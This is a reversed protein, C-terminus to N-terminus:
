APLGDCLRAGWIHPSVLWLVILSLLFLGVVTLFLRGFRRRQVWAAVGGVLWWAGALVAATTLSHPSAQGGTWTLTPSVDNPNNPCAWTFIPHAIPVYFLLILGLVLGTAFQWGLVAIPGHREPPPPAIAATAIM